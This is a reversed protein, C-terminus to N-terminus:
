VGQDTNWSPGMSPRLGAHTRRAAYAVSLPPNRGCASGLSVPARRTVCATLGAELGPADQGAL